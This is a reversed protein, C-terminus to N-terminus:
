VVLAGRRHRGARSPRALISVGILADIELRQRSARGALASRPNFGKSVCVIHIPLSSARGALASRPNFGLVTQGVVAAGCPRGARSPRALISVRLRNRSCGLFGSARGALASRPNFGATCAAPSKSCAVGPGRPGLSSQFLLFQLYDDNMALRGARSPRALISVDRDAVLVVVIVFVGPGRPGLSSQFERIIYDVDMGALRGARSPRALISVRVKIGKNWPNSSARGALASRPNFSAWQARDAMSGAVGPGRPGLSSQFKIINNSKNWFCHRGARSPRALISVVHDIILGRCAALRGARSPRALISVM